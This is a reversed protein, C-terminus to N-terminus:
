EIACIASYQQLRLDMPKLTEDHVTQADDQANRDPIQLAVGGDTFHGMLLMERRQKRCSSEAERAVDGPHRVGSKGLM